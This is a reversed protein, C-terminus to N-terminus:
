VQVAVSLQPLVPVLECVTVNILSLTGGVSVQEALADTDHLPVTTNVAGVTVSLQSGSGTSITKIASLTAPFICVRVQCAVSAEPLTAVHLWLMVTLVLWSAIPAQEPVLALQGPPV